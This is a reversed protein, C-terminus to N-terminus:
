RRGGMHQKLLAMIDTQGEKIYKLEILISARNERLETVQNELRGIRGSTDAWLYGSLAMIITFFSALIWMLIKNTGNKEKM